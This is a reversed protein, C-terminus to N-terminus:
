CPWCPQRTAGGTAPRRSIRLWEAAFVSLMDNLLPATAQAFFSRPVSKFLLMAVPTTFPNQGPDENLDSCLSSLDYLKVIDDGKGSIVCPM